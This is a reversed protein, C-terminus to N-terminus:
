RQGTSKNKLEDPYKSRILAHMEEKNKVKRLKEFDTSTWAKLKLKVAGETRAGLFLANSSIKPSDEELVDSLAFYRLEKYYSRVYKLLEIVKEYPFDTGVWVSGNANDSYPSMDTSYLMVPNGLRGILITLRQAKDQWSIIVPHKTDLEVKNEKSESVNAKPASSCHALIFCCLLSFLIRNMYSTHQKLWMFALMNRRDM